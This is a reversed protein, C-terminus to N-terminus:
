KITIKGNKNVYLIKVNLEKQRVNPSRNIRDKNRNGYKTDSLRFSETKVDYNTYQKTKINYTVIDVPGVGCLPTFVLLDPDKAFHAQAIIESLVGKNGTKM